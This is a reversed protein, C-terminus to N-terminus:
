QAEIPCYAFLIETETIQGSGGSGVTLGGSASNLRGTQPDVNVTVSIPFAAISVAFSAGTFSELSRAVGGEGSLGLDYGLGGGITRYIGRAGGTTEFTGIGALPGGGGVGTFTAASYTVVGELCDELTYEETEEESSEPSFGVEGIAGELGAGLGAGGGIIELDSGSYCFSTGACAQVRGGIVVITVPDSTERLGLPDIFNVPDNLVYAYLNMGGQYGIPDTQLFRGLEASYVRNRMYTLGAEPLWLQGAYQFAGANGTGPAGFPGYSNAALQAGTGGDTLAIVSGREDTLVYRRDGTAMGSGEYITVPAGLSGPTFVYREAITSGGIGAFRTVIRDGDWLYRRDQASDAADVRYLRGLPDYGYSAITVGGDSVATLRNLSDYSFTHTGDGTLNGRGDYTPTIASGAPPTINTYRNLGNATYGTTGPSLADWQYRSTDRGRTAIQNAPNFTFDAEVDGPYAPAPLDIGLTDLRQAADYAFNQDAANVGSGATWQTPRNLTDYTVLGLRSGIGSTANAFILRLTGTIWYDYSFYSTDPHTIRTRAGDLRYQSSVTGLPGAETLQRGFIDYTFTLNHGSQSATLMRSFNDYTYSVDPDSGPLNMLTRRDLDDYTFNITTGDRLRRATVNGNDDYTFREYDTASSGTGSANPYRMDRLRDFGDYIYTTLNGEGDALTEVRGNDTFTRVFANAVEATSQGNAVRIVRRANDYFYGTIRDPGFSGATDPTCASAPPTAFEAPNMRVAICTPLGDPHYSYDVHSFRTASGTDNARVERWSLRGIDDYGSVVSQAVSFANWASQSTGTVTGYDARTVNGNDDYVFRQALSRQAAAGDPDPAIMGELQIGANYRYTTTRFSGTAYEEAETLVNGFPDYTYRTDRELSGNGARVTIEEPLLNTAPAGGAGYDFLIELQDATDNCTLYEGTACSLAQTLRWVPTAAPFITSSASTRYRAYQQEHNYVTAPRPALGAGDPDPLTVVELGGHIQDWVYNTVNGNADTTTSPRNCTALSTCPYTASTFITSGGSGPKPVRATSTINGNGDYTYNVYNGEPATIRILRGASDYAYTTEDGAGNTVSSPRDSTGSAGFVVAVNGGAPPNVTTTLINNALNYAYTWVGAGNDYRSVRGNSDYDIDIPADGIEPRTITDIREQADLTVTTTRGLNDTASIDSGSYNFTMEPWDQTLGGCDNATPNCYDVANNIAIAGTVRNFEQLELLNTVTDSAYDVHLQYGLNNTISQVRNLRYTQPTIITITFTQDLNHFTTEIGSPEYASIVRAVVGAEPYNSDLNADFIFSTGDSRVYVYRQTLSNYTLASGSEQDSTYSGGSETFTEAQRGFSVTFTSGTQQIWGLTTDRRESGYWQMAYGLAEGAVGGTAVQGFAFNFEGNALNVGNADITSYPDPPNAPAQAM